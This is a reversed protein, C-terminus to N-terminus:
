SDYEAMGAVVRRAEASVRVGAFAVPAALEKGPEAPPWFRGLRRSSSVLLDLSDPDADGRPTSPIWGSSHSPKM